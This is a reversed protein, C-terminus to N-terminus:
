CCMALSSWAIAWVILMPIGDVVPEGARNGREFTDILGIDAMWQSCAV